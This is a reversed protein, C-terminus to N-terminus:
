KESIPKRDPAHIIWEYCDHALFEDADLSAFKCVSCVKVNCKDIETMRRHQKKPHKM